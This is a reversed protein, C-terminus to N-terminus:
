KNVLIDVQDKLADYEEKSRSFYRFLNTGDFDKQAKSLAADMLKIIVTMNEDYESQLLDPNKRCKSINIGKSDLVSKFLAIQM